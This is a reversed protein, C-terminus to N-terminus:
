CLEVCCRSVWGQLTEGSVWSFIGEGHHFFFEEEKGDKIVLRIDKAALWHLLQSNGLINLYPLLILTISKLSVSLFFTTSAELLEKEINMGHHGAELARAGCTVQEM